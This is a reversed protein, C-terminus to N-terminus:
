PVSGYQNFILPFVEVIKKRRNYILTSLVSDSIKYSVILLQKRVKKALELVSVIEEISTIGKKDILVLPYDLEVKDGM